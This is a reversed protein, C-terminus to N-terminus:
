ESDELKIVSPDRAPERIECPSTAGMVSSSAKRPRISLLNRFPTGRMRLPPTFDPSQGSFYLDLWREAETFVPPAKIERAPPLTKPFYRQGDFWLGTLAEGDSSLTIGGLPSVYHYSYDM